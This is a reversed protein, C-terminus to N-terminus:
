VAHWGSPWRVSAPPRHAPNPRIFGRIREIIASARHTNFVIREIFERVSTADNLAAQQLSRQIIQANTLIAALPQNLVWWPWYEREGAELRLSEVKLLLFLFVLLTAPDFPLAPLQERLVFLLSGAASVLGGICWYHVARTHQGSLVIWIALAMLLTMASM